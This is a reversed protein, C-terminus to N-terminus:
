NTPKVFPTLLVSTSYIINSTHKVLSSIGPYQQNGQPAAAVIYVPQYGGVTGPRCCVYTYVIYVNWRTILNTLKIEACNNAGFNYSGVSLLARTTTTYYVDRCAFHRNTPQPEFYKANFVIFYLLNNRYNGTDPSPCTCSLCASGPCCAPCAPCGPCGPCARRARRRPRSCCAVHM